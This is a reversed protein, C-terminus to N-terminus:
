SNTTFKVYDNAMYEAAAVSGGRGCSGFFIPVTASVSVSEASTNATINIFNAAAVGKNSMNVEGSQLLFAMELFAGELTTSQLQPLIAM